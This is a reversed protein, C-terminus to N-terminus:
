TKAPTIEFQVNDEIMKILKLTEPDNENRDRMMPITASLWLKIERMKMQETELEKSKVSLELELSRVRQQAVELEKVLGDYKIQRADKWNKIIDPIKLSAIIVALSGGGGFIAILLENSM